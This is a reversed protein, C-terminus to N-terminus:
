DRLERPKIMKAPNGGAVIDPPLDAFASARAGLITRDGINVNPGVFADAAIWADDGVTIPARILTMARTTADHTGACLHAYQSITVNKGLTIPGLSYLIAFDGVSTGQGITLHWPVEIRVTRRIRVNRALTAGFLRLLWRRWAYANHPSPRFLTAQVAYWAFRGLKQRGTWPSQHRVDALQQQPTPVPPAPDGSIMFNVKM